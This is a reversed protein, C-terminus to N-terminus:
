KLGQHLKLHRSQGLSEGQCVCVIECSHLTSYSHFATIGHTNLSSITQRNYTQHAGGGYKSTRRTKTSSNAHERLEASLSCSALVISWFLRGSENEMMLNHLQHSFFVGKMSGIDSEWRNAMSAAATEPAGDKQTERTTKKKRRLSIASTHM